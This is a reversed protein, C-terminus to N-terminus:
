EPKGHAIVKAFISDLCPFNGPRATFFQARFDKGEASVYKKIIGPTYFIRKRAKLM